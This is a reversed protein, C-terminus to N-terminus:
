GAALGAAVFLVLAVVLYALPPRLWAHFPSIDPVRAAGTALGYLGLAALPLGALALVAATVGTASVPSGLSEVLLRVLPVALAMTLVGVLVAVAPRRARYIGESPPLPPPAPPPTSSTAPGRRLAARDIPEARHRPEVVPTERTATPDHLPRPISQGARGPGGSVPDPPLPPLTEGSRPGVPSGPYTPQEATMPRGSSPPRASEAYGHEDHPHDGVQRPEDATDSSREPEM